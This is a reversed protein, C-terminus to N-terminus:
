LTRYGGDSRVRIMSGMMLRILDSQRSTQTKAFIQKLYTRLTPVKVRMREAAENVSLGEALMGVLRTEAPSLGYLQCIPLLLRGVDIEPNFVQVVAAPDDPGDHRGDLAMVVAVLARRDGGRRLPVITAGAATTGAPSVAHDVAVRLKVTDAVDTAALAAGARRLGDADAILREGCANAFLLNGARDLLYTAIDTGDLASVMGQMRGQQGRHALWLRFYAALVPQLAAVAEEAQDRADGPDLDFLATLVIRDAGRAALPMALLLRQRGGLDLADWNAQAGGEGGRRDPWTVAGVAIMGDLTDSAIEHRGLSFILEIRDSGRSHLSLAAAVADGRAAFDSVLWGIDENFSESAKPPIPTTSEPPVSDAAM